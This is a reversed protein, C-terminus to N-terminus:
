RQIVGRVPGKGPNRLADQVAWRDALNTEIELQEGDESVAYLKGTKPDPRVSRGNSRHGAIARNLEAHKADGFLGAFLSEDQSLGTTQLEGLSAADPPKGGTALDNMLGRLGKGAPKGGNFEPYSNPPGIPNEFTQEQELVYRMPSYGKPFMDLGAAVQELQQTSEMIRQTEELYPRSQYTYAAQYVRRWDEKSFNFDEAALSGSVLGIAAGFLGGGGGAARLADAFDEPDSLLQRPGSELVAMLRGRYLPSNPDTKPDALLADGEAFASALDRQASYAKTARGRQDDLAKIVFASQDTRRQELAARVEGGMKALEALGARQLDEDDSRAWKTYTDLQDKYAKATAPDATSDILEDVGVDLGELASTRAASKRAAEKRAARRPFVPGIM